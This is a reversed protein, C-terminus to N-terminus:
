RSIAKREASSCAKSSKLISRSSSFSPHKVNYIEPSTTALQGLITQLASPDNQVAQRMMEFQPLSALAQLAETGQPGQGGQGGNGSPIGNLLYEVARESNNYAARLAAVCQERPFGMSM